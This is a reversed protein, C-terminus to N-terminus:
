IPRPAMAALATASPATSVLATSGWVAGHEIWSKIAAVHEPPLPDTQAPMSPRELGAIRRYLRSAAADGPVIDSGRAGGKLASDRSRLDFKGSQMTEGHCSLCAQELVPKVQTDFSIPPASAPVASQTSLLTLLLTALLVG